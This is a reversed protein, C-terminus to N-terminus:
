LADGWPAASGREAPLPAQRRDKLRVANPLREFTTNGGERVGSGASEALPAPERKFLTCLLPSKRKLANQNIAMMVGNRNRTLVCFAGNYGKQIWIKLFNNCIEQCAVPNTICYTVPICENKQAAQLYIKETKVKKSMKQSVYYTFLFSSVSPPRRCERFTCAHAFRM